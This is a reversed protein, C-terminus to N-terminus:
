IRIFSRIMCKASCLGNRHFKCKNCLPLTGARERKEGPRAAYARAVNQRTYPPQQAHNNRSNNDMKKKNKAQRAACTLLKQDMLSRTLEIAEQLSRPKSAMLSGQISDSLGGTYKEVKDSEDPVMETELKKKESRSYNNETMMKMLTKRPMGYAADHRVNREEAPGDHREPDRADEQARDHQIHMTLRDADYREVDIAVTRHYRRQRELSSVRARVVAKEDQSPMNAELIIDRRTPPPLPIRPLSSSLPSLLSLLPLPPEPTSFGTQSLPIIYHHSTPSPPTSPVVEEEVESPLDIYLRAPLSDVLTSLEEEEEKFSEEKLDEELDEKAPESDTSYDPSLATPSASALLPQAKA